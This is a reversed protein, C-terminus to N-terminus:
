KALLRAKLLAFEEDSLVGERHLEALSRIEEVVSKVQSTPDAVEVIPALSPAGNVDAAKLEAAVVEVAPQPTPMPPDQPASVVDPAPAPAGCRTCFKSTASIRNGCRVCSRFATPNLLPSQAPEVRSGCGTCFQATAPVTRKCKYCNRPTASPSAPTSPGGPNTAPAITQASAAKSCSTLVCGGAEALCDPHYSSNCGACATAEAEDISTRCYPCLVKAM